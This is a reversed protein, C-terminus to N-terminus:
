SLAMETIRTGRRLRADEIGERGERRGNKIIESKNPGNIM